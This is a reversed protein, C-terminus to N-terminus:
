LLDLVIMREGQAKHHHHQLMVCLALLLAGISCVLGQFRPSTNALTHLKPCSLITRGHHLGQGVKTPPKSRYQLLFLMFGLSFPMRHGKAQAKAQPEEVKFPKLMIRGESKVFIRWSM